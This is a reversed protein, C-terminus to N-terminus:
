PTVIGLITTEMGAHATATATGAQRGLVKPITTWQFLGPPVNFFTLIGTSDTINTAVGSPTFSQTGKDATSIKVEIGAQSGALNPCTYAAVTVIGRTPDLTVNLTAALEQWEAVTALETYSYVQSESLPHTWYYDDPMFGGPAVRLFGVLGSQETGSISSNQFPLTVEGSPDTTGPPTIPIKCDPDATSCLMVPAGAIPMGTPYDQVWFHYTDSASVATPWVVTSPFEILCQAWCQPDGNCQGFCERVRRMVSGRRVGDVRQLLERQRVFRM